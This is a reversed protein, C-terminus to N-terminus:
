RQRAFCRSMRGFGSPACIYDASGLYSIPTRRLEPSRLLPEAASASRTVTGTHDPDNQLLASTTAEQTSTCGALLTTLLLIQAPIRRKYEQASRSQRSLM